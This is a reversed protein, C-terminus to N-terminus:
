HCLLNLTRELRLLARTIAAITHALGRLIGRACQIGGPPVLPRNRNRIYAHQVFPLSVKRDPLVCIPLAVSILLRAILPYSM